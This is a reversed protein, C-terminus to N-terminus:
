PRTVIKIMLDADGRSATVRRPTERDRRNTKTTVEAERDNSAASASGHIGAASGVGRRRRAM